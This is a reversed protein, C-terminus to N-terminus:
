PEPSPDCTRRFLRRVVSYNHVCLTVVCVAKCQVVKSHKVCQQRPVAIGRQSITFRSDDTLLTQVAALSVPVTSMLMRGVLAWIEGAGCASRWRPRRAAGQVV